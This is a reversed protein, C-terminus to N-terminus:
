HIVVRPSRRWCAPMQLQEVDPGTASFIAKARELRAHEDHSIGAILDFWQQLRKM